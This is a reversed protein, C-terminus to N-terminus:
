VVGSAPTNEHRHPATGDDRRDMVRIINRYFLTGIFYLVATTLFVMWYSVEWSRLVQFVRAALWWAGSWIAGNCASVLERNREGVYSMTLESIAPGAMSMLPQRVIFCLVAVPLSWALHSWLETLGMFVLLVVAVSQVGIIAGRWGYRRRIEPVM